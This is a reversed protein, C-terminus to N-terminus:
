YKKIEKLTVSKPFSTLNQGHSQPKFSEIGHHSLHSSLQCLGTMLLDVGFFTNM